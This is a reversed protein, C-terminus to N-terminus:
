EKSDSRFRVFGRYAGIYLSNNPGFAFTGWLNNFVKRDYNDKGLSMKRMIGMVNDDFEGEEFYPKISFVKTGTTFDLATIQWDDHSTPGGEVDRNYVYVLSNATSLKPTATKADLPEEYPPWNEHPVFEGSTEDYDFRMIGGPTDNSTFPDVYGYTNAVIFTNKYAIISNECASGDPQFLPFKNILKGTKQSFICINVKSTDNDVIAVFRDDMLTPSTGSGSNLHGPKRTYDNEYMLGGGIFNKKWEPDFEIDNTEENFRLKYLAMDTVIYVGDDGV